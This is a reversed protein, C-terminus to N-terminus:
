LLMALPNELMQKLTKLFVAGTAGDIVRHDCSLTLRMRRRVVITGDAVVPKQTVSGVALIAAEPPNIVATFQDIDFMGLNSVSFTSGTYEEPRLRRNRARLRRSLGSSYVPDVNETEFRPMNSMSWNVATILGGSAAIRATPDTVCFGTTASPVITTRRRMRSVSLQSWRTM